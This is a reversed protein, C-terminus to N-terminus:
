NLESKPFLCSDFMSLYDQGVKRWAYHQVIKDRGKIGINQLLEPQYLISTLRSTFKEGRGEVFGHIGDTIGLPNAILPTVFVPVGMAMAQMVNNKIGTGYAIPSVVIMAGDFARRIDPLDEMVTVYDPLADRISRTVGRGAVVLRLHPHKAHIKPYVERLLYLCAEENMGASLNGTFVVSNEPGKIHKPNFLEIDVGNPVVAVPQPTVERLFAADEDAVATVQDFLSFYQKEFSKRQYGVYKWALKALFSQQMASQRFAALSIADVASMVKPIGPAVKGYQAMFTQEYFLIDPKFSRVTDRIKQVMETSYFRTPSLVLKALNLLTRPRHYYISEGPVREAIELDSYNFSPDDTFSLFYCDACKAFEQLLFHVRLTAGDRYIPYPPCQSIFLVRM